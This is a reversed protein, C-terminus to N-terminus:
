IQSVKNNNHELTDTIIKTYYQHDTYIGTSIECLTGLYGSDCDCHFSDVGDICKGNGSCNVGECENINM